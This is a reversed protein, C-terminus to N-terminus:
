GRSSRESRSELERASSVIREEIGNPIMGEVGRQKLGHTGLQKSLRHDILEGKLFRTRGLSLGVGIRDLGFFVDGLDFRILYVIGIILHRQWKSGV